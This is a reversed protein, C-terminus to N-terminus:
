DLKGAKMLKYVAQAIRRSDTKHLVVEAANRVSDLRLKYHRSIETCNLGGRAILQVIRLQYLTLDKM